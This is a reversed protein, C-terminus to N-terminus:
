FGPIRTYHNFRDPLRATSEGHRGIVGYQRGIAPHIGVIQSLAYLKQAIASFDIIAGSRGARIFIVRWGLDFLYEIRERKASTSGYWAGCEVEIAIFHEQLAIDINYRSIALQNIPNLGLEKLSDLLEQEHKGKLLVRDQRTKALLETNRTKWPSSHYCRDSLAKEGYHRIFTAIGNPEIGNAKLHASLRKRCVRYEAALERLPVGSLYRQIFDDQIVGKNFPVSSSKRGRRKRASIANYETKTWKTIGSQTIYKNATKVNVGVCASVESLSMGSQYLGILNNIQSPEIIRSM